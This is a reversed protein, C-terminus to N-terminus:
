ITGSSTEAAQDTAERNLIRYLTARGIGLIAAAEKKNGGVGELVHEVYNREAEALSVLGTAWNKNATRKENHMYEPLDRVDIMESQTMMCARGIANELERVNGPWSHRSLVSQARRTLGRIPKNYQRSFKKVFHRELLPLDEQREALTPLTVEVMALRYYLDERFQKERVMDRLDRNTAAIVRVDVKHARPSGVRQIEQNQLARLLKAQVAIPIEGVEDLFLTGGNAAEFVGIRDQVAGTFSGRLHGFLESEFLTEVITACNCTIFPGKRAPSLSQLIEAALQKGTGTQGTILVTRFHPAIRQLMAFVEVVAPSSGVMGALQSAESLEGQLESARGRSRAAKILNGIRERFVDIDFPKSLYDCAGRRIAEVANEFSYHATLLVIDIGPNWEVIQDLLDLGSLGPMVLDLIVIDPSARRVIELGQRPDSEKQIRLGPQALSSAILDLIIPDDDIALIRVDDDM